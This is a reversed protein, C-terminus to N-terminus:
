PTVHDGGGLPIFDLVTARATRGASGLTMEAKRGAARAHNEVSRHQHSDVASLAGRGNRRFRQRNGARARRSIGGARIRCLRRLQAAGPTGHRKRLPWVGSHGIAGPNRRIPGSREGTRECAPVALSRARAWRARLVMGAELLSVSSLVRDTATELADLLRKRSPEGLSIAVLASTDIVM